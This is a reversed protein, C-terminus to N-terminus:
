TIYRRVAPISFVRVCESRRGRAAGEADRTNVIGPLTYSYNSVAKFRATM